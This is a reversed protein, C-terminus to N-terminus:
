FIFYFIIFFNKENSVEKIAHSKTHNTERLVYKKNRERTISRMLRIAM